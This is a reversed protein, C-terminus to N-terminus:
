STNWFIPHFRLLSMLLRLGLHLLLLVHANMGEPGTWDACWLVHPAWMGSKSIKPLSHLTLFGKSSLDAPTHPLNGSAEARSREPLEHSHHCQRSFSVASYRKKFLFNDLGSVNSNHVLSFSVIVKLKCQLTFYLNCDQTEDESFIMSHPALDSQCSILQLRGALWEVRKLLKRKYIYVCVCM